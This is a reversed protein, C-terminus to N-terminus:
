DQYENNEIYMKVSECGESLTELHIVYREDNSDQYMRIATELIELLDHYAIIDGNKQPSALM